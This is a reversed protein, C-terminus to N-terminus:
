NRGFETVLASNCLRGPSAVLLVDGLQSRSALDSACVRGASREPPMLAQEPRDGSEGEPYDEGQIAPKRGARGM